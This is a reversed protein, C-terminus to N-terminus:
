CWMEDKRARNDGLRTLLVVFSHGRVCFISFIYSFGFFDLCYDWSVIEYLHIDIRRMNMNLMKRMNSMRRM